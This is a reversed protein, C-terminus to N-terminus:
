KNEVPIYKKDGAPMIIEEGPLFEEQLRTELEYDAEESSEDRCIREVLITSDKRRILSDSFLYISQKM